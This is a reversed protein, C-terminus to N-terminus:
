GNLYNVHKTNLGGCKDIDGTERTGISVPLQMNNLHDRRILAEDERHQWM